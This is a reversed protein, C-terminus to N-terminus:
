GIVAKTECIRKYQKKCSSDFWTEYSNRQPRLQACDEGSPDERWYNDPEKGQDNTRTAWFKAKDNLPTGDVWLWTGETVADTLSIWHSKDQEKSINAKQTINWAKDSLFRQEGNSEIIVLHGGLSTCNDRSSIWNMRDTSFYYCKGNFLEWNQPCAKCVREKSSTDTVPCYQDLASYKELINSYNKELTFVTASINTYNRELESYKTQMHLVTASINTYNRELESYKTQMHLVTDTYNRELESYQSQLELNKTQFNSIYVSLFIIAAVSVACLGALVLAAWRYPPAKGATPDATSSSAAQQQHRSPADGFKVAAYTVDDEKGTSTKDAARKGQNKQSFDVTSYLVDSSM